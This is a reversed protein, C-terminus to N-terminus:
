KASVLLHDALSARARAAGGFRVLDAHVRRFHRPAEHEEAYGIAGLTHHVELSVQRLAPAAFAIAADAFVSWAADGRDRAEAAGCLSLRAGELRSFCDVLKHQLAQFEGIVHGFQRRVKAHDLALDFARQAAGLARAATLVRVVQAADALAEASCPTWTAPAGDLALRSLAPVALGPNGTVAVGAHELPAVAVGFPESVLVLVHSSAAVSEVFELSGSLRGNVLSAVGAARDGDFAGLAVTPVAAGARVAALFDQAAPDDSGELLQNALFAGILPAPCSARGLEELVLLTESLGPGEDAGLDALGLDCLQASIRKLAEADGAMEVATEVPWGAELLRRLSDLLSAREHESLQITM